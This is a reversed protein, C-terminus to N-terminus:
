DEDNEIIFKFKNPLSKIDDGIWLVDMGDSKDYTACGFYSIVYITGNIDCIDYFTGGHGCHICSNGKVYSYKVTVDRNHLLQAFHEPNISINEYIDINEDKNENEENEEEHLSSDPDDRLSTDQHRDPDENNDDFNYVYPLSEINEGQWLVDMHDEQDYTLCKFYKIVYITEDIKCIDYVYGGNECHVCSDASEYRRKILEYNGNRLKYYNESDVTIETSM